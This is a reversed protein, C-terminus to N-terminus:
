NAVLGLAAMDNDDTDDDNTALGAWGPADLELEGGRAHGEWINNQRCWALQELHNRYTDRGIDLLRASVRYPAVDFPEGSEVAVIVYPLARGTAAAYGDRYFAAQCHYGMNFSANRFAKDSISRATKLDVLAGVTEALFDIRGKCEIGTAADTWLVTLEAQGGRLYPGAKENSRAASSIAKCTEYQDATLIELGSALAQASFKDWEKGRRTGGDWIAWTALFSEPELTLAHTGRGTRLTDTDERKKTEAARYHFPSEGMYKLTSWHARQIRSYQERTLGPYIGDTTPISM